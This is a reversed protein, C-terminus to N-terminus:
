LSYFLPLSTAYCPRLHRSPILTHPLWPVVCVSGLVAVNGCGLPFAHPALFCWGEEGGQGSHGTIVTACHCVCPPLICQPCVWHTSEDHRLGVCATRLCVDTLSLVHSNATLFPTQANDSSSSRVPLLYTLPHCLCLSQVTPHTNPQRPTDAHTGWDSRKYVASSLKGRQHPTDQGYKEKTRCTDM